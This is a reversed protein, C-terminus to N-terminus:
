CGGLEAEIAARVEPLRRAVVEAASRGTSVEDALARIVRQLPGAMGALRDFLRAQARSSDRADAAAERDILAVGRDELARASRKRAVTGLDRLEWALRRRIAARVALLDGLDSGESQMLDELGPLCGSPTTTTVTALSALASAERIQEASWRRRDAEAALDRQVAPPGAAALALGVELGLEGTAVRAFLGPDLPVLAAADRLVRARPSVGYAAVEAPSMGTDRLLKALDPATATGNALNSLAGLTRAEIADAAEILLVAVAPVGNAQALRLRHHGDVLALQGAPDPWVLLCGALAQNWKCADRLRGDTGTPNIASLRFQFTGPDVLLDGPAVMRLPGAAPLADALGDALAEIGADLAAGLLQRLAAREVM